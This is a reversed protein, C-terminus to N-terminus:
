KEYNLSYTKIQMKFKEEQVKLRKLKQNKMNGQNSNRIKLNWISFPIISTILTEKGNM